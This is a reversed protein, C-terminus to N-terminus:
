YKRAWRKQLIRQARSNVWLFCTPAWDIIANLYERAQREKTYDSKVGSLFMAHFPSLPLLYHFLLKIWIPSPLKNKELHSLIGFTQLDSHLFQESGDVEVAAALKRHLKRVSVSSNVFIELGLNGDGITRNIGSTNLPQSFASGQQAPSQVSLAM